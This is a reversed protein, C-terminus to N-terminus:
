ILQGSLRSTATACYKEVIDIGLYRRGSRKAAICTTGAGVFPDLVVDNRFSFLRIVRDALAEPFMAPHGYEKMRREPAISWKGYVWKKFEDAAIDADLRNGEKKLDGKCYIEIFEWSYKLYPNSPSRWSGWATYKCNYNNKEWVIEGKWILKKGLFFNSIMHHSPIYDSYLPQVNVIIRGGYKLVRVCQEFISFLRDFYDPWRHDDAEADYDLGFNYPPSTFVMDICNDPLQMLVQESDGCVISNVFKGPLDNVEQSFHSGDAYYHKGRRAAKGARGAVKREDAYGVYTRKGSDIGYGKVSVIRDMIQRLIGSDGNERAVIRRLRKIDVQRLAISIQKRDAVVKLDNPDFAQNFSKISDIESKDLSKKLPIALSRHSVSNGDKM